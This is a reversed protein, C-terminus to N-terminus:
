LKENSKKKMWSNKYNKWKEKKDEELEDLIKQTKAKNHDDILYLALGIIAIILFVPILAIAVEDSFGIAPIYKM